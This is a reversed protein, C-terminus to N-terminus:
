GEDPVLFCGADTPECVLTGTIGCGQVHWREAWHALSSADVEIQELPCGTLRATVRCADGQMTRLLVAFLAVALLATVVAAGLLARLVRTRSTRTM